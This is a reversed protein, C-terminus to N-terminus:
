VGNWYLKEVKVARNKRTHALLGKKNIGYICKFRKDKIEYESIYVPTAISSAWDLFKDHDFKNLYDATGKYPPDCYIVSNPKIEVKDYSKSHFEL